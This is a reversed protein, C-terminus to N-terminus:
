RQGHRDHRKGGLQPAAVYLRRSGDAAQVVAASPDCAVSSLNAAFTIPGWNTGGDVSNATGYTHTLAPASRMVAVLHDGGGSGGGGCAVHALAAEDFTCKQGTVPDNCPRLLSRTVTFSM